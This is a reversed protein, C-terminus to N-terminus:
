ISRTRMLGCLDSYVLEGPERTKTDSFKPIATRTMKGKLCTQCVENTQGRREEIRPLISTKSMLRITKFNTHGCRRHYDNLTNNEKEPKTVSATMVQFVGGQEKASLAIKGDKIIQCLGNEMVIQAGNVISAM